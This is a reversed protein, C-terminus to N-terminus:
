GPKLAMARAYVADRAVGTVAAVVRAARAPPLEALLAVLWRETAEDLAPAAAAGEAPADVILVFEGRVRNADAGFWASAQSLPMRAITEFAKTVERAVVLTRADGFSAAIDGVTAAVRHPAEYMVVASPLRALRDLWARRAKAQVPAFGAFLFVDADLGAASVAATLASAGPVPSVRYGAEHVARVLRAGPDSVAPTGADTVLAVSEGAALRGVIAQARAAENHAHLSLTRTAIGYHSLLRATVRTDEAAVVDVTALVDLARLTVDRLNGVPTAVSYLTGPRARFREAVDGDMSYAGGM